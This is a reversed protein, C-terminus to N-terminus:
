RPPRAARQCDFAAIDHFWHRRLLRRAPPRFSLFKVCLKPRPPMCSVCWTIGWLQRSYQIGRRECADNGSHRPTSMNGPSRSYRPLVHPELSIGCVVLVISSRVVSVCAGGLRTHYQSCVCRCVSVYQVRACLLGRLRPARHNESRCVSCHRPADGEAGQRRVREREFSAGVGSFQRLCNAGAAGRTLFRHGRTLSRM